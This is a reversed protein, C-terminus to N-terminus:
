ATPLIESELFQSHTPRGPRSRRRGAVYLVNTGFLSIALVIVM